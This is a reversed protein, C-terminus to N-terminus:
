RCGYSICLMTQLTFHQYGYNWFICKVFKLFKKFNLFKLLKKFCGIFKRKQKFLLNDFM